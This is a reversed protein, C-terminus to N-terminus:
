RCIKFIKLAGISETGKCQMIVTIIESSPIQSFVKSLYLIHSMKVLFYLSKSIFVKFKLLEYLKEMEIKTMNQQTSFVMHSPKNYCYIYEDDKEIMEGIRIEKLYSTKVDLTEVGIKHMQKLTQQSVGLRNISRYNRVDQQHIQTYEDELQYHLRIKQDNQDDVTKQQKGIDFMLIYLWQLFKIINSSTVSVEVDKGLYRSSASGGSQIESKKMITTELEM